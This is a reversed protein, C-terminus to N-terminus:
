KVVINGSTNPATPDAVHLQCPINDGDPYFGSNTAGDPVGKGPAGNDQVTFVIGQGSVDAGGHTGREVKIGIAARNGVVALCTVPGRVEFDLFPPDQDAHIAANGHPDAGGVESHASLEFHGRSFPRAFTGGGTAMQNGSANLQPDASTPNTTQECAM